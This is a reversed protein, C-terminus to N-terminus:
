DNSLMLIYIVNVHFINKVSTTELNATERKNVTM